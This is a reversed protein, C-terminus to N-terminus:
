ATLDTERIIVQQGAGVGKAESRFRLRHVRVERRDPFPPLLHLRQRDDLAKAGSLWRAPGDLVGAFPCDRVARFVSAALRHRLAIRSRSARESHREATRSMAKRDM